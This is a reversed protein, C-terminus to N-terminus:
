ASTLLQFAAEAVLRADAGALTLDPLKGGGAADVTGAHFAVGNLYDLLKPARAAVLADTGWSRNAASRSIQGAMFEQTGQTDPGGHPLQRATAAADSWRLATARLNTLDRRGLDLPM